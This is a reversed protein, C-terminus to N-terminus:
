CKRNAKQLAAIGLLSLLGTWLVTCITVGLKPGEGGDTDCKSSTLSEEQSVSSNCSDRYKVAVTLANRAHRPLMNRHFGLSKNIEFTSFFVWLMSPTTTPLRQHPLLQTRKRFRVQFLHLFSYYNIEALKLLLLSYLRKNITKWISSEAAEGGGDIKKQNWRKQWSATLLHIQKRVWNPLGTFSAHESTCLSSTQVSCFLGLPVPLLSPIRAHPLYFSQIITISWSHLIKLTFLPFIYLQRIIYLIFHRNGSNWIDRAYKTLQLRTLLAWCFM